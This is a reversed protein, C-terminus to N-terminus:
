KQQLHLQSRIANAIQKDKMQEWASENSQTGEHLVHKQFQDIAKDLLDEDAESQRGGGMEANLRDKFKEIASKSEEERRLREQEAAKGTIQDLFSAKHEQDPYQAAEATKGTFQDLFSTKHQEYQQQQEPQEAKKGTFQDLFGLRHTHHRDGNEHGTQGEDRGEKVGEELRERMRALVGENERKEEHLRVLEARVEAEERALEEAKKERAEAGTIKDLLSGYHHNEPGGHQKSAEERAEEASHSGGLHERLRELVGENDRKEREIKELRYFLEMQRNTIEIRRKEREEKHHTIQSLLHFKSPAPVTPDTSPAALAPGISSATAAPPNQLEDHGIHAHQHHSTNGSGAILKSLFDREPESHPQPPSTPTPQTPDSLDNNNVTGSAPPQPHEEQAHHGNLSLGNVEKRIKSILDM